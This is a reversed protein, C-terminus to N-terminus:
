SRGYKNPTGKVTSVTINMDLVMGISSSTSPRAEPMAIIAKETSPIKANIALRGKKNIIQAAMTPISRGKKKRFIIPHRM